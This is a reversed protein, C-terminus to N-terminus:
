LLKDVCTYDTNVQTGAKGALQTDAERREQQFDLIDSM